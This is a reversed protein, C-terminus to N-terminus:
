CDNQAVFPDRELPNMWDDAAGEDLLVPMRHHIPVIVGSAACTVIMFTM